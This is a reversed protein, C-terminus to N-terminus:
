NTSTKKPPSPSIQVRTWITRCSWKEAHETTQHVILSHFLLKVQVIDM